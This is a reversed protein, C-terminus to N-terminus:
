LKKIDALITLQLEDFVEKSIAGSDILDQCKKLQDILESRINVRRGPSIGGSTPKKSVVSETSETSRKRIFFPKDPPNDLSDHTKLYIMHAWTHLQEPKFKGGHKEKLKSFIATIEDQKKLQAGYNSSTSVNESSKKQNAAPAKKQTSVHTYCWLLILKKHQHVEYMKQLDNDDFLWVKRGKGGHGPEIFGMEVEQLNPAEITSPLNNSIFEKLESFTKCYGRSQIEVNKYESMRSPNIMKLVYGFVINSPALSTSTMNKEQLICQM